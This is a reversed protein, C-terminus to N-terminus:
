KKMEKVIRIVLYTFVGASILALFWNSEKALENSVWELGVVGAVIALVIFLEKVSRVRGVRLRGFLFM